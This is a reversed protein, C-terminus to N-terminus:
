RGGFIGTGVRIMNSGEEVAVRYDGTMGMSLYEMPVEPVQQKIRVFLEKLKRFVPRAEEPDDVLPAMTMLGRVSVGPLDTAASAIFEAAEGPGLGHKSKEGSVNVQVLAESIVGAEGSRRNIELALKWSDLSHILYIKGVLPKVKNTQLHGIFHWRVGSGVLPQKALLELM